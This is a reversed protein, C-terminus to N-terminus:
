GAQTFPPPPAASKMPATLSRLWDLVRPLYRNQWANRRRRGTWWHLIGIWVFSSVVLTGLLSIVMDEPGRMEHFLGYLAFCGPVLWLANWLIWHKWWGGHYWALSDTQVMAFVTPRSM